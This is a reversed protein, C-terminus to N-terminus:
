DFLRHFWRWHRVTTAKALLTERVGAKEMAQLQAEKDNVDKELQRVRERHPKMAEWSEKDAEARAENQQMRAIKDLREDSIRNGTRDREILM